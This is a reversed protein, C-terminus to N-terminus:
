VHNWTFIQNDKKVLRNNVPKFGKEKQDQKQCGSIEGNVDM